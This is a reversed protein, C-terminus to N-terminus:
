QKITNAWTGNADDSLWDGEESEEWLYETAMDLAGWATPATGEMFGDLPEAEVEIDWHAFEGEYYIKTLKITISENSM